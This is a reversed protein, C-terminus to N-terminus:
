ARRRPLFEVLAALQRGAPGLDAIAAVAAATLQAAKQRAGELSHLRPYTAKLKKQDSGPSKGMEARDGEVDLIDDTIQFVQGFLDGYRSVAELGKAPAHALLAGTRISATFLRGTKHHDIYELQAADIERGESEIDEVQGAIMGRNGAARSIEEIVSLLEDALFGQRRGNTIIMEFACTLLADGALVAVAEGFAKHCTPVGRRFDDDDMCPLDDHILSYSHILDIASAVPLIREPREGFAEATLVALIPRLRKGPSLASYRMARHVSAPRESEAPLFADLERDVAARLPALEELITM